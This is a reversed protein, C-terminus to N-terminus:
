SVQGPPDHSAAATYCTGSLHAAEAPVLPEMHSEDAKRTQQHGTLVQQVVEDWSAGGVVAAQWRIEAQRGILIQGQALYGSHSRTVRRIGESQNM